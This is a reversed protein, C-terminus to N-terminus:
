PMSEANLVSVIRSNSDLQLSDRLETYLEPKNVLCAFVIM